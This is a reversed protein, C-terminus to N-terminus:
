RAPRASFKPYPLSAPLARRVTRALGFAYKHCGPHKLPRTVRALAERLWGHLDGAPPEPAGAAVLQAAAYRWGRERARIKSMARESFVQGGPLLRLTRAKGHGLYTASSAQYITGIHGPFIQVGAADTRPTPDSFSVVAALGERRLLEFARALFWTEGNAPVEDLLVFRGLEAGDEAAVDPFTKRLVAQNAPVSFVAVGVVEGRNALAFRFRAAPYSGSYHHGTVFAKAETEGLPAVDFAAPDIPEGAPRYSARHERWRQTIPTIM